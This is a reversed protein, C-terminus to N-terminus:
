NPKRLQEISDLSFAPTNSNFLEGDSNKFEYYGHMIGSPTSLNVSSAYEFEQYPEIVPQLGIVGPGRVEKVMGNGDTIHWYRNLLQVACKGKNEIKINYSWIFVGESMSSKEEIFEPQAHITINDNKITYLNPM